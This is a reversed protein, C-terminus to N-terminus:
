NQPSNYALRWTKDFRQSLIASRIPILREAGKRSWRMGPGCLRQKYQKVVREVMGSGIPYWEMRMELYDMCKLKNQFYGAQQLLSESKRPQRTAHSKLATDLKRAHGLSNSPGVAIGAANNSRAKVTCCGLLKLWTNACMFSILSSTVAYFHENLTNKEPGAYIHLAEWFTAWDSFDSPIIANIEGM